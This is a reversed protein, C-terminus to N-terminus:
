ATPQPATLSAQNDAMLAEFGAAANQWTWSGQRELAARHFRLWLDDDSLLRIAAASFAAQGKVVFGTENDVVREKMCAIDEVVGPLGMAQPEAAAYCFTEGIDGRYLFVRAQTIEEALQSKSIPGRLVVGHDALHKAKDFIPAMREAKAAGTTGYISSGAFIHLEAGAVRPQIREAWVDLLWDLSRLPNSLFIARPPPPTERRAAGLFLPTIGLPIVVRAGGAAWAPYTSLHSPGSFVITPRYRLLPWQYRWKLLYKAPNHIWFVRHRAEECRGILHNSRNAIYLDATRPLGMSRSADDLPTWRVGKWMLPAECRCFVSVHHGRAALTEALEAFATEAGGLPREDKMKGDFTIGDDTMVITAPHPFSPSAM